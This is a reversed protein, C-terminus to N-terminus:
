EPHDVAGAFREAISCSGVRCGEIVEVVEARVRELEALKDDIRALVAEFRWRESECSATGADVSTLADIIEDLTFGLAQLSKALQIRQVTADPYARYGDPRRSPAPIVGRREYFRVTDVSVEARRAVQGIKLEGPSQGKGQVHTWVGSEQGHM